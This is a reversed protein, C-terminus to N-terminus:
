PLVSLVPSFMMNIVIRKKPDIKIEAVFGIGEQFLMEM